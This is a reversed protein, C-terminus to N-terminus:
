YAPFPSPEGQEYVVTYRVWVPSYYATLYDVVINQGQHTHHQRAVLIRGSMFLQETREWDVSSQSPPYFGQVSPTRIVNEQPLDDWSHVQHPHLHHM